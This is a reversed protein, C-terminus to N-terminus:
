QSWSVIWRWGGRGFGCSGDNRRGGLGGIRRRKLAEAKQDRAVEIKGLGDEEDALQIDSVAFNRAREEAAKISVITFNKGVRQRVAPSLKIWNASEVMRLRRPALVVPAIADTERRAFRQHRHIRLGREVPDGGRAGVIQALFRSLPDERGKRFCISAKRRIVQRAVRAKAAVLM